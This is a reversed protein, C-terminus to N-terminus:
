KAEKKTSKKVKEEVAGTAIGHQWLRAKINEMMRFCYIVCEAWELCDDVTLGLESAFLPTFEGDKRASVVFLDDAPPYGM